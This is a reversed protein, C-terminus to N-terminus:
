KEHSLEKFVRYHVMEVDAVKDILVDIGKSLAQGM